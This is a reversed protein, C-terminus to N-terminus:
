SHSKYNRLDCIAIKIVEGDTLKELIEVGLGFIWEGSALYEAGSATGGHSSYFCRVPCIGDSLTPMKCGGLHGM